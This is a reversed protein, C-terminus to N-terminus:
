VAARGDGLNNVCVMVALWRCWFWRHYILLQQTLLFSPSYPFFVHISSCCIAHDQSAPPDLMHRIKCKIWLTEHSVSLKNLNKVFLHGEADRTHNTTGIIDRKLWHRSLFLCKLKSDPDNLWELQTSAAYGERLLPQHKAMKRQELSVKKWDPILVSVWASVCLFIPCLEM